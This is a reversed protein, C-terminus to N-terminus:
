HLVGESELWLVLATAVAYGYIALITRRRGLAQAEEVPPLTRSAYILYATALLMGLLFIPAAWRSLALLLVGGSSLLAGILAVFWRPKKLPTRDQTLAEISAATLRGSRAENLALLGLLLSPGAILYALAALRL